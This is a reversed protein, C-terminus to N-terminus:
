YRFIMGPVADTRKQYDECAAPALDLIKKRNSFAARYVTDMDNLHPQSLNIGTLSPVSALIDIYHDGRGCYHLIGSYRDLLEKDYPFPYATYMDPSLNMASDNRLCIQGRMWFDWHVNLDANNPYMAFWKDLFKIYTDTLLRLLAHVLEPEDYMAYFMDPGWLLEALDLPGQTDPHYVTVYKAIKPYNQRITLWAEGFRFVSGGFATDLAPIGREVIRRIADTGGVTKTTPLTNQERPMKFIEAGFLSSLIGTGYNARMSLAASPRGLAESVRGLQMALMLDLDDIADTINIPMLKMGPATLTKRKPTFILDSVGGDWFNKWQAVFDEEVEPIIRDEIDQLLQLTYASLKM